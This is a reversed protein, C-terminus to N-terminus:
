KIPRSVVDDTKSSSSADPMNPIDPKPLSGAVRLMISLWVVVGVSVTKFLCGVWRFFWDCDSSGDPNSSSEQENEAILM